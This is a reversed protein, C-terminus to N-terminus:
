QRPWRRHYGSRHRWLCYRRRRGASITDNGEYGSINDAGSTGNLHNDFHNGHIMNYSATDDIDGVQIDLSQTDSLGGSDTVTVDVSVHSAAEYDLSVGDVLKLVTDGDQM